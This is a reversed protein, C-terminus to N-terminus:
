IKEADLSAITKIKDIFQKEDIENSMLSLLAMMLALKITNLGSQKGEKYMESTYLAVDWGVSLANTLIEKLISEDIEYCKLKNYYNALDDSKEILFANKEM